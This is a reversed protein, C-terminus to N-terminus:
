LQIIWPSLAAALSIPHASPKTSAAQLPPLLGDAGGVGLLCCAARAVLLACFFPAVTASCVAPM